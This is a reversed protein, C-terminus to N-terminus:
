PLDYEKKPTPKSVRKKRKPKDEVQTIFELTEELLSILEKMGHLNTRNANVANRIGKKLINVYGNVVLSQHINDLYPLTSYPNANITSEEKLAM